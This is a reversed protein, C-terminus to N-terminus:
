PKASKGLRQVLRDALDDLRTGARMSKVERGELAAVGKQSEERVARKAAVGVKDLLDHIKDARIGFGLAAQSIRAPRGGITLM